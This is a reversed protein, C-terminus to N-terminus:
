FTYGARLLLGPVDSLRYTRQNTLHSNYLYLKNDISYELGLELRWRRTPTMTLVASLRNDSTELYRDAEGTGDNSLLYYDVNFVTLGGALAYRSNFRYQLLTEPIGANLFWGQQTEEGWMIGLLPLITTQFSGNHFSVGAYAHWASAMDHIVVGDVENGFLGSREREFSEFLDAEVGYQWDRCLSNSYSAELTLTHLTNWVPESYPAFPRGQDASWNYSKGRYDLTLFAWSCSAGVTSVEVKGQGGKVDAGKWFLAETDVPVSWEPVPPEQAPPEAAHGSLALGTVLLGWALRYRGSM